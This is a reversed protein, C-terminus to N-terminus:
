GQWDRLDIVRCDLDRLEAQRHSVLILTRNAQNLTTRVIAQAAALDLEAFGEDILTLKTPDWLGRALKVRQREGGSFTRPNGQPIQLTTVLRRWSAGDDPRGLLVNGQVDDDFVTGDQGLVQISQLREALSMRAVSRGNLLITGATPILEGSILKLLTSKGIGSPGVIQYREGATVTFSLDHFVDTTTKPYRFAVQQFTLSEFPITPQDPQVRGPMVAALRQTIPQTTGMAILRQNVMGLSDFIKTSLEAVAVITGVPLAAALVLLGTTGILILQSTINMMALLVGALALRRANAVAAHGVALSGRHILQRFYGFASFGVLSDYGTVADTVRRLLEANGQTILQGGAATYRHLLRPVLAMGTALAVAVALLRWSYTFLALLSFGANGLFRAVLYVNRFGNDTLYTIDAQFMAQYDGATHAQHQAPSQQIMGQAVDARLQTAMRQITREQNVQLMCGLLLSVLWLVLVLGVLWLFRARNGRVLMDVALGLQTAALVQLGSNVLIGGILGLNQPWFRWM